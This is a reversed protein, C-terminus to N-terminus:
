KVGYYLNLTGICKRKINTYGPKCTCNGLIEISGNYHCKVTLPHSGFTQVANRVCKGYIILPSSAESPANTDALDLLHFEDLNRPNCLYYFLVVSKVAGCYNMTQLGLKIYKYNKNRKFSLVDYSKSFKDNRVLPKSYIPLTEVHEVHTFINGNNGYYVILDFTNKCKRNDLGSSCIDTRTETEISVFLENIRNLEFSGSIITCIGEDKEVSACSEINNNLLYWRNSHCVGNLRWGPFIESYEKRNKLVIKMGNKMASIPLFVGILIFVNRSLIWEM